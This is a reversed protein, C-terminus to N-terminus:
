IQNANMYSQLIIVASTQDVISKNQRDSKKLGSMLMAQQAMKSTFREDYRAVMMEPFNKKLASVFQEVYKAVESPTNDMQKPEGVVVCEVIEREFYKKLFLIIDKSHITDLATAIIKNTDTVAIGVRKTGYDIAMIRGM